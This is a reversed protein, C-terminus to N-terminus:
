LALLGRENDALNLREVTARAERIKREAKERSSTSPLFEALEPAYKGVRISKMASIARNNITQRTTGNERAIQSYSVGSFYHRSLAAAGDAPIEKLAKILLEHLEQRWIQTLIDTEIDTDNALMDLMSVGDGNNNYAEAELSATELKQFAALTGAKAIPSFNLAELAEERTVRHGTEMELEQKKKIMDRFRQKMFAPIRVTYGNAEYYRCLEWKIKKTFYTSFKLGTQATYSHAAAYFAFYAQQEMDEFDQQRENLGTLQHVTLRVLHTNREWLETMIATAEASHKEAAQLLSTLEENTRKETEAEM